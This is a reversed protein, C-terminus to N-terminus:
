LFKPKGGQAADVLKGLAQLQGNLLANDPPALRKAQEWYMKAASHSGEALLANAFAINYVPNYPNCILAIALYYIAKPLRDKQQLLLSGLDFAARVAAEPRSAASILGEDEKLIGLYKLEAEKAKGSKRLAAAQAYAAEAGQDTLMSKALNQVDARTLCQRCTFMFSHLTQHKDNPINKFVNVAECRRCRWKIRYLDGRVAGGEEKEFSIVKAPDIVTKSFITLRAIMNMFADDEIATANLYPWRIIEMKDKILGKALADYYIPSGPYVQLRSLTIHYKRNNAWWDLSDNATELTEATEGFILNGQIGIRKEYTIALAREIQEKTAKKQMSLLVADNMSEIGYSIYVCGAEKMRIIVEEDIVGVHLQVMWKINFPEMRDCFELLRNKKVAFIEDLVAVMNIAYKGILFELEEFFGDLGRNRYVRGTPHFCFSCAFPCSRSAIMPLSRPNEITDYFYNDVPNALEILDDAQFGEYDPWPISDLDHNPTRPPTQTAKGDGNKFWIGNVDMLSREDTLASFVELITQEGEGVVGIDAELVNLMTEPDSSFLGGGVINIISPKALRVYDFIAKVKEFHASLGGVGCVDPDFAKIARALSETPALEQHNLNLCHVDYGAQKLTSSIYAIGLPFDYSQGINAFMPVVLLCKM